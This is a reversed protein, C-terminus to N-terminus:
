YRRGLFSPDSTDVVPVDRAVITTRLAGAPRSEVIYLRRSATPLPPTPGRDPRGNEAMFVDLPLTMRTAWTRGQAWWASGGPRQVDTQWFPTLPLVRTRPEGLFFRVLPGPSADLTPFRTFRCVAVQARHDIGVLELLYANTRFAVGALV